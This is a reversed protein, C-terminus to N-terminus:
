STARKRHASSEAVEMRGSVEEPRLGAEGAAHLKKLDRNTHQRPVCRTRADRLHACSCPLLVEAYEGGGRRGERLGM